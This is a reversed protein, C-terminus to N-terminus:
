VVCLAGTHQGGAGVAVVRAGPPVGREVKRPLEEDNDAGHGLQLMEGFGWTFVDGARSLAVAHSSGASVDDVLVGAPFEVRAPVTVFAGASEKALRAGEGSGLQAQDCRGWAYCAGAETLAVSYHEGGEVKAVRKGQFFPLRRPEPVVAEACEGSVQRYQNLGCGWVECRVTSVFLSHYGGAGVAKLTPPGEVRRPSVHLLAAPVDYEEGSKISLPVRRGLQGQEGLGFSFAAGDGALALTHNAGCAVHAVGALEPMAVPTKAWARPGPHDGRARPPFWTKGDKDRYAGWVFLEGALTVAAGHCDGCAVELVVVRARPLAIPLPTNEDGDRGLAHEDGCGWTLITDGADKSVVLANTLGGCAYRRAVGGFEDVTRVRRPYPV